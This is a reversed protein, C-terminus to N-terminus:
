RLIAKRRELADPPWVEAARYFGEFAPVGAPLAVWPVKSRVYIHVDPAIAHPEDLTGVRVFLAKTIGAYTSWLAVRCNPCRSIVQPKGSPAPVPIAEVAGELVTVRDAEIMANIAFAGGSLRQCDLCHCGHTFMPPGEMRYRVQGCACAGTFTTESM